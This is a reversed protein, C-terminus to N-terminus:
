AGCARLMSLFNPADSKKIIGRAAIIYRSAVSVCESTRTALTVDFDKLQDISMQQIVRTTPADAIAVASRLAVLAGGMAFCISLRGGL